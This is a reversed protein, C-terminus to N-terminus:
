HAGMAAELSSWGVVNPDSSPIPPSLFLEVLVMKLVTSNARRCLRKRQQSPRLVARNDRPKCGPWYSSGERHCAQWSWTPAFPIVYPRLPLPLPCRRTVTASFADCAAFVVGAHRNWSSISSHLEIGKSQHRGHQQGAARVLGLPRLQGLLDMHGGAAPRSWAEGSPRGCPTTSPLTPATAALHELCVRCQTASTTPQESPMM